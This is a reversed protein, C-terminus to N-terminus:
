IKRLQHINKYYKKLETEWNNPFLGKSISNIELWFNRIGCDTRTKGRKPVGKIWKSHSIKIIENVRISPVIWFDPETKFENLKIFIYYFNKAGGIEDKKSLPFRKINDLIRTKVSIKLTKGSTNITIIDYKEARGLTITM